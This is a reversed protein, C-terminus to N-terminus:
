SSARWPNKQKQHINVQCVNKHKDVYCMGLGEQGYDELMTEKM